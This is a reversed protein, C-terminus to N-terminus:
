ENKNQVVIVDYEDTQDLMAKMVREESIFEPKKEPGSDYIEFMWDKYWKCLVVHGGSIWEERPQDYLAYWNLALIFLTDEDQFKKVVSVLDTEYIKDIEDSELVKKMAFTDYLDFTNSWNMDTWVGDKLFEETEYNEFAKDIYSKPDQVYALDNEYTSNSAYTVKFWLRSLAYAMEVENLWKGYEYRGMKAIKMVDRTDKMNFQTYWFYNLVGMFCATSCCWYYAEPMFNIQYKPYEM